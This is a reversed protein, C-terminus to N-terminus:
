FRFFNNNSGGVKGGFNKINYTLTVLGYRNLVEYQVDEVINERIYRYMSINQNLLDFISFKLQARDNKMFLYTVGANVRNFTRRFGPAVNSNYRHELNAEWVLKKPTRIIIEPRWTRYTVRRNEFNPSTYYSRNNNISFTQNIEIKDNLNVRSEFTPNLGLINADSRENNLIVLTKNYTSWLSAAFSLNYKANFKYDKSARLSGYVQWVGNTNIPRTTQVGNESLFRERIIANKEMTGNGYVSINILRKADYKRYNLYISNSITPKLEPNGAVIFM